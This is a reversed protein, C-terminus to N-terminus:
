FLFSIGWIERSSYIGLLQDQQSLSPDLWLLATPVGVVVVGAPVKRGARCPSVTGAHVLMCGTRWHM